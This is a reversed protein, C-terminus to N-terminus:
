PGPYFIIPPLVVQTWEPHFFDELPTDANVSSSTLSWIGSQKAAAGDWSWELRHLPIWVTPQGDKSPPKFMVWTKFSDNATSSYWDNGGGDTLNLSLPQWPSDVFQGKSPLIWVGSGFPYPFSYDLAGNREFMWHSPYNGSTNRYIHRSTTVLQAFCGQGEDPFPSLDTIEVDPWKIGDQAPSVLGFRDSYLYVATTAVDGGNAKPRVSEVQWSKAQFDPLGGAFKSNAPLVYKLNCKVTATGKKVTYFSFEPDDKDTTSLTFKQGPVYDKFEGLPGGAAVISWSYSTPDVDLGAPTVSGTIRQGTLFKRSRPDYFDTCGVLSVQPVLISSAYTVSATAGISADSFSFADPTCTLTITQGGQRKTYLTGETTSWYHFGDGGAVPAFTLGNDSDAFAIGIFSWAEASARCYEKSIVEAPPVDMPDDTQTGPIKDPVWKWVTTITGECEVYDSGDNHAGYSSWTGSYASYNQHVWDWHITGGYPNKSLSTDIEYHGAFSQACLCALLLSIPGRM